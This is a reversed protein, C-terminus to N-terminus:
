YEKAKEEGRMYRLAGAALSPIEDEGPYIHIPAIFSVREKILNVLRSWNALGGTFGIAEIKGSLVAAAAGIEKSVQYAMAEIVEKAREDSNKIREEIELGSTTGLYAFLGGRGCILRLMEERTYQGSFCMEILDSTPLSGAREPSFPGDGDLANNVDIIAGKCHSGVSIGGGLHVIIINIDEYNKQLDAYLRRAVAKQNLAHFSSRRKIQPIGSYTALSCLEHSTPPDVILAPINLEKGLHFCIEGGVNTPHTGYNGSKMDGLMKKTILYVGTPIPRTNGGRSVIASFDTMTYNQKEVWQLITKKRLDYQDWINLHMRLEEVPHMINERIIEQENEYIAAKTSTSGSNVILLRVNKNM